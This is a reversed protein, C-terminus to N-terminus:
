AVPCAEDWAFMSVPVWEFLFNMQACLPTSVAYQRWLQLRFWYVGNGETGNLPYGCSCRDWSRDARDLVAFDDPRYGEFGGAGADGILNDQRRHFQEPLSGQGFNRFQGVQQQTYIRRPPTDFFNVNLRTVRTNFLEFFVDLPEGGYGLAHCEIARPLIAWNSPVDMQSLDIKIAKSALIRDAPTGGTHLEIPIAMIQVGGAGAGFVIIDEDPETPETPEPGVIIQQVELKLKDLKRWIDTFEREISAPTNHISHTKPV